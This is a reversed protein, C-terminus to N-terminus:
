VLLLAINKSVFKFNQTVSKPRRTPVNRGCRELSKARELIKAGVKYVITHM